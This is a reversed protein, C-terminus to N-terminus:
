RRRTRPQLRWPRPEDDARHNIYCIIQEPTCLWLQGFLQNILHFVNHHSSQSTEFTHIPRIHNSPTPYTYNILTNSTLLPHQHHHSHSFHLSSASASPSFLSSEHLLNVLWIYKEQGNLGLCCSVLSAGFRIIFECCKTVCEARHGRRRLCPLGAPVQGGIVTGHSAKGLIPM